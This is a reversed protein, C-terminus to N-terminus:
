ANSESCRTPASRLDPRKKAQIPAFTPELMSPGASRWSACGRRAASVACMCFSHARDAQQLSLTEREMDDRHQRFMCEVIRIAQEMKVDLIPDHLDAEIDLLDFASHVDGSAPRATSVFNLCNM